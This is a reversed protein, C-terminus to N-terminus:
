VCVLEKKDIERNFDAEDHGESGTHENGIDRQMWAIM